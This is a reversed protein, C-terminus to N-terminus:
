LEALPYRPIALQQIETSGEIIETVKADRLYRELPFDQSLGHAGHLRVAENAVRVATKAAFYKAIMTEPVAGPDREARLYGARCCLLRAARSDAIMETLLRRVLQHEVLPAGGQRRRAAYDLCANLCGQAIGVAGWAVSYRGHDLATAFVHSLGFGV